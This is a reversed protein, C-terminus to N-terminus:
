KFLKNMYKQKMSNIDPTKVTVLEGQTCALELLKALCSPDNYMPKVNQTPFENFNRTKQLVTLVLSYIMEVDTLKDGACYNLEYCQTGVYGVNVRFGFMVPCVGIWLSGDESVKRYFTHVDNEEDIFNM